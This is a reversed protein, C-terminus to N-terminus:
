HCTTMFTQLICFRNLTLWLLYSAIFHCSVKYNNLHNVKCILIAEKGVSVTVNQIPTTFYPEEETELHNISTVTSQVLFFQKKKSIKQIVKFNHNEFVVM